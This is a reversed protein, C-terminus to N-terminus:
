KQCLFPLSRIIYHFFRPCPLIQYQGGDFVLFLVFPCFQYSDFLTAELVLLQSPKGKKQIAGEWMM